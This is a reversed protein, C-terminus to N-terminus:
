FSYNILEWKPVLFETIFIILSMQPIVDKAYKCWVKTLLLYIIFPIAIKMFLSFELEEPVRKFCYLCLDQTKKNYYNCVYVTAYCLILTAHFYLLHLLCCIFNHCECHKLLLILQKRCILM